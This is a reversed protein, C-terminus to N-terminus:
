GPAQHVELDYGSLDLGAATVTPAVTEDDGCATVVFVLAALLLIRKM